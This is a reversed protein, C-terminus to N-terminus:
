FSPVAHAAISDLVQNMTEESLPLTQAETESSAQRPEPPFAYHIM